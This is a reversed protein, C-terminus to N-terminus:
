APTTAHAGEIQAKVRQGFQNMIDDFKRKFLGAGLGAIKGSVTADVTLALTSSDRDPTLDAHIDIRVSSGLASDKGTGIVHLRSGEEVSAVALDLPMKLKLPGIRDTVLATYRAHPEVVTASECGPICRALREVDWLFAWVQAPPAQIAITHQFQM